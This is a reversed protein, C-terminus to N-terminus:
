DGHHRAPTRSHASSSRTAVWRLETTLEGKVILNVALFRTVRSIAWNVVPLGEFLM